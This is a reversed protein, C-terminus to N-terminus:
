RSSPLVSCLELPSAFWIVTQYFIQHAASGGPPETHEAANEACRQWRSLRCASRSRRVHWQSRGLYLLMPGSRSVLSAVIVRLRCYEEAACTTSRYESEATSPQRGSSTKVEPLQLSHPSGSQENLQDPRAQWQTVKSIDWMKENTYNKKIWQGCEELM